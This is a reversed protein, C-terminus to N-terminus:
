VSRVLLCGLVLTSIPWWGSGGEDYALELMPDANLSEPTLSLVTAGSEPSILDRWCRSGVVPLPTTTDTM